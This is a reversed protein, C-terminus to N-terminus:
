QRVQPKFDPYQKRFAKNNQLEYLTATIATDSGSQKDKALAEEIDNSWRGYGQPNATVTAIADHGISDGQQARQAASAPRQYPGAPFPPPPLQPKDGYGQMPNMSSASVRPPNSLMASPNPVNPRAQALQSADYNRSAAQARFGSALEDATKPPGAIKKGIFDLGKKIAAGKPNLLDSPNFGNPQQSFVPRSAEKRAADASLDYISKIAGYDRNANTFAEATEPTAYQATDRIVGRAMDGAEKSIMQKQGQPTGKTAQTPYGVRDMSVKFDQLENVSINKKGAWRQSARAIIRDLTAAGTKDADTYGGAYKAKIGRLKGLFEDTPVFDGTEEAVVRVQAGVNEGAPKVAQQARVAYDRYSQPSESPFLREAAGALEEEPYDFGHRQTVNRYAPGTAGVAEARARNAKTTLDAYEDMAAASKKLSAPRSLMKGTAAGLMGGVLSAAAASDIADSAIQMPDTSRSAGAGTILGYPAASAAGAAAMETTSPIARAANLGTSAGANAVGLPTAYLPASAIQETVLQGGRYQWPKQELAQDQLGQEAQQNARYESMGSARGPEDYAKPQMTNAGPVFRSLTRGVSSDAFAAGAGVSEDGLEWPNRAGVDYAEGGSMAPKGGYSDMPDPAPPAAEIKQVPLVLDRANDPDFGTDTPLEPQPSPEDGEDVGAASRAEWDSLAKKLLPKRYRLEDPWENDPKMILTMARDAADDSDIHATWPKPDSM